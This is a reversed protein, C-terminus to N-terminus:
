GVDRGDGFGLGLREIRQVVRRLLVGDRELELRAVDLEDVVEADEVRASPEFVGLLLLIDVKGGM